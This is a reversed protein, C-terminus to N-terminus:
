QISRVFIDYSAVNGRLKENMLTMTYSPPVQIKVEGGVGLGVVTEDFGRVQTQDAGVKFSIPAKLDITSEVQKGNAYAVYDVTVTDGEKITRGSGKKVVNGKIADADKHKLVDLLEIQFYLDSYPKIKTGMAHDQYGLSYPISLRRQGGKKMGLLGQDWGKIVNGSGVTFHFPEGDPKNNTDFVSEDALKGTYRVWVDDGNEVPDGKGVTNDEIILKALHKVAHAPDNVATKEKESPGSSGCGAMFVTAAASLLLYSLRM